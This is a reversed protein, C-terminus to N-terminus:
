FFEMIQNSNDIGEMYLDEWIDCLMKINHKINTEWMMRVKDCINVCSEWQTKEVTIMSLVFRPECIYCHTKM